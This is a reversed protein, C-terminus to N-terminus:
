KLICGLLGAGSWKKPTLTLSIQQVQASAEDIRVVVVDIPKGVHAKVVPVVSESTLATAWPLPRASPPPMRANPEAVRVRVPVVSEFTLATVWPSPQASPPPM